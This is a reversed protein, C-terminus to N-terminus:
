SSRRSHSLSSQKGKTPVYVQLLQVIDGRAHELAWKEATWGNDDLIDARAGHALLLEVVAKHGCEAAHMLATRNSSNVLNVEVDPHKLLLEVCGVQGNRAAEMLASLGWTNLLNVQIKPHGLLLSLKHDSGDYAASMLGTVGWKNTLNVELKPHSILLEVMERSNPTRAPMLLLLTRGDIDRGNVEVNPHKLVLRFVDKGGVLGALMLPTGRADWAFNANLNVDTEPLQLLEAVADVSRRLCAVCLATSGMKKTRVNVDKISGALAIPLNFHAVVHLPGLIDLSRPVCAPFSQCGAVFERLQSAFPELHLSQRAHYGWADYAYRLISDAYFSDELNHTYEITTNCQFGHHLFRNMCVTALVCDPHPVTQRILTELTEKATYDAPLLRRCRILSSLFFLM